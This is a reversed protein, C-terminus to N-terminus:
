GLGIFNCSAGVSTDHLPPESPAIEEIVVPPVDGYM